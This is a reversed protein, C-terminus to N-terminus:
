HGIVFVGRRRSEVLGEAEVVRLADRIPGRSVEFREALAAEVLHTGPALQGSIILRRLTQAVEAGLSGHTVPTVPIASIGRPEQSIASATTTESTGGRRRPM